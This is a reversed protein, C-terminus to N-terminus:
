FFIFWGGEGLRDETANAAPIDVSINMHPIRTGDALAAEEQFGVRRTFVSDNWVMSLPSPVVVISRIKPVDVWVMLNRVVFRNWNECEILTSPVM